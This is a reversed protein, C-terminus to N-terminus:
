LSYVQSAFYGEAAGCETRGALLLSIESDPLLGAVMRTVALEAASVGPAAARAALYELLQAASYVTGAGPLDPFLLSPLPAPLPEALAAALVRPSLLRLYRGLPPLLTLALGVAEQYCNLENRDFARDVETDVEPEPETDLLTTVLASLVAAIAAAPWARGVTDLLSDVLAPGAAEPGLLSGQQDAPRLALQLASVEARVSEEDQQLLRLTATWLVLWGPLAEPAPATALTGAAVTLARAVAQRVQLGQEPALAALLAAAWPLLHPSTPGMAPALVAVVGARVTDNESHTLLSLLPLVRDGPLQTAPRPLATCARLLAELCGPHQELGLRAHLPGALRALLEGEAGALEELVAARVEQERHSLLHSAPGPEARALSCRVALRTASGLLLPRWVQPTGAVVEEPELLQALTAELLATDSGSEVGLAESCLEIYLSQTLSCPNTALLRDALRLLPAALTPGLAPSTAVLQQVTLLQGHVTNQGPLGSESCGLGALLSAAHEAQQEAPVLSVAAAAALRRTHLLPSAAARQVAPLFASLPFPNSVTETPSPFLRALLLLAPYLASDLAGVQEEQEFQQLLFAHLGPYRQFFVKGTLCNKASVLDKTRRVGFIRTMLASFLLTAATREAWDSARFGLVAVTVGQELFAAVAEGLQSDRYLVRLINAAHVRSGSGHEDSGALRLLRRMAGELALGGKGGAEGTVVAQVIFPVGASRRTACLERREPQEIDLLLDELLLAPHSHLSPLASSWLCRVLSQFAVYAQEFAGKHKTELMLTILFSSIELIQEATILNEGESSFTSCLHGLFLAVEKVSRWACLLLMQSSVERAKTMGAETGEEEDTEKEETGEELSPQAEGFQLKMVEPGLETLQVTSDGLVSAM